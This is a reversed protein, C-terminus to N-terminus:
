LPTSQRMVPSKSAAAGSYAMIVPDVPDAKSSAVTLKQNLRQQLSSQMANRVKNQQSSFANINMM